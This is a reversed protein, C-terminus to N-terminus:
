VSVMELSNVGKFHKSKKKKKFLAFHDTARCNYFDLASLLTLWKVPVITLQNEGKHLSHLDICWRKRLYWGGDTLESMVFQSFVHLKDSLRHCIHLSCSMNLRIVLLNWQVETWVLSDRYLAVYLIEMPILIPYFLANACQCACLRKMIFSFKPLPFLVIKTNYPMQYQVSFLDRNCITPCPMQIDTISDFSDKISSLIDGVWHLSIKLGILSVLLKILLILFYHAKSGYRITNEKKCM